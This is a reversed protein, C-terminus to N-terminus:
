RWEKPPLFTANVASSSRPRAALGALNLQKWCRMFERDDPAPNTNIGYNRTVREDWYLVQERGDMRIAMCITPADPVLAATRKLTFVGSNAVRAKLRALQNADLQGMRMASGWQRSDAAFILRGDEWVAYRLSPAKQQNVAGMGDSQLWVALMPVPDRPHPISPSELGANPRDALPQCGGLLLALLSIGSSARM